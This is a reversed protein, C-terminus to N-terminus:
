NRLTNLPANVLLEIATRETLAGSCVNRLQVVRDRHGAVSSQETFIVGRKGLREYWANRNTPDLDCAVAVDESVIEVAVGRDLLWEAAVLGAQGRGDSVVLARRVDISSQDMLQMPTVVSVEAPLDYHRMTERAGTAVVVVRADIAALDNSVVTRNCEIVVGRRRREAERWRIVRGLEAM